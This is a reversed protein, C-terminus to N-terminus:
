KLSQLYALLDALQERTMVNELGAPMVSVSSPAMHEIEARTLRVETQQPTRIQITEATESTIVGTYVKGDVTTIAYSEFGRALSASPFLVAELLDRRSRRQGVTSLDPGIQGGSSEARHCSACAARQGFFVTKGRERDGEGLVQELEALRQHRDAEAAVLREFIPKAATTASPPFNALLERIRSASLSAVGPSKALAAVLRLGLAEDGGSEFAALLAPLELPGLQPVLDVIALLQESSLAAAGLGRAAALRQIPPRESRLQENLLAFAADDLTRGGAAAAIAEVRLDEPWRSNSGVSLLANAFDQADIAAATAVAQRVLSEEASALATTLGQRWAEPLPKLGSRAICELLLRRTSSPIQGNGLMEAVLAQIQPDTRFAVVAGRVTSQQGSTLAEEQLLRSLLARAEEGWDAHRGIVELAATQLPADDTDLLPAVEAQTLNGHEMRDLAILAGRRVRPSADNLGALTPQRADIEILAFIAAHEAVRDLDAGLMALLAPVARPDGIQGLSTAAQRRVPPSGNATLECLQPVSEQDKVAGAGMAAAQRVRDDEDNLAVRLAAKAAPSGIRTLAWVANIRATVNEHELLTSLNPVADAGRKVLEDIARERVAFRSDSLYSVLASPTLSKWAISQGRPDSVPPADKRRVRYIAGLINPKAIQSTPCGIRFWGGTDIVLLSGDADELCDTPHFDASDATFFDTVSARYTSGHRSLTARVVKHTNFETIFFNDRYDAGFVGSRYRTTGSVAVHGLNHVETLLDGTRRFEAICQPQDYRPYVGGHIWHVLCDGRERYFLNVTGLMDGETTFDIEVPNDMGGGCHVRVDSGDPRCSFIRAALGKSIVEGNEETFEHGHRGDCWYIRGEPGQFCGHIDAANGTYGFKSVLVDRRDAVGDGDTDELRWINPPSAVYLAGDRWLAGQPFTMKDAFITSTDFVGDGDTDELRRIFNPLQAELDAARLNQGASEAIYLRGQDDFTAMMPHRVLPPAAAVTVEFGDPVHIRPPQFSTTDALSNGVLAFVCGAVTLMCRLMFNDGFITLPAGFADSHYCGRHVLADILGKRRDSPFLSIDGHPICGPRM